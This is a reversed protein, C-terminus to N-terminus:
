LAATQQILHLHHHKLEAKCFSGLVLRVCLQEGGLASVKFQKLDEQKMTAWKEEPNKSGYLVYYKM